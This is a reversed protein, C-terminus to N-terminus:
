SRMPPRTVVFYAGAHTAVADMWRPCLQAKMRLLGLLVEYGVSDWLQWDFGWGGDKSARMVDWVTTERLLNMALRPKGHILAKFFHLGHEVTPFAGYPVDYVAQLNDHGLVDVM